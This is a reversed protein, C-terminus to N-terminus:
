QHILEPVVGLLTDRREPAFLILEWLGDSMTNMQGRYDGDMSVWHIPSIMMIEKRIIRGDSFDLRMHGRVDLYFTKPNSLGKSQIELKEPLSSHLNWDSQWGIRHTWLSEAMMLAVLLLPIVTQLNPSSSIRQASLLHKSHWELMSYISLLVMSSAIWIVDVQFHIVLALIITSSLLSVLRVWQFAPRLIISAGLLIEFIGL